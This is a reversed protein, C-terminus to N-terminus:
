LAGASGRYSPGVELPVFPFRSPFPLSLSPSPLFLLSTLPLSFLLVVLQVLIIKPWAYISCNFPVKDSRLM